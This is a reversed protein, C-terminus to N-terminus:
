RKRTLHRHRSLQCEMPGWAKGLTLSQQNQSHHSCRSARAIKRLRKIAEKGIRRQFKRNKLWRTGLLNGIQLDEMRPELRCICRRGRRWVRARFTSKYRHKSGGKKAANTSCSRTQRSEIWSTAVKSQSSQVIQKSCLVTLDRLGSDRRRTANSSRMRIWKISSSHCGVTTSAPVVM